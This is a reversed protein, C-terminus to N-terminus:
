FSDFLERYEGAASELASADAPAWGSWDDSSFRLVTWDAGEAREAAWDVGTLQMGEVTLVAAQVDLRELLRGEADREVRHDLELDRASARERGSADRLSFVGRVIRVHPIGGIPHPAGGGAPPGAPWVDSEAVPVAPVMGQTLRGLLAWARDGAFAPLLRGEDDPAMTLTVDEASLKHIRSLGRPAAFSWKVRLVRVEMGAREDLASIRGIRLNLSETARIDGIRVEMGALKSLRREVAVRFWPSRIGAQAGGYLLAAALLLGWVIRGAPSRTRAAM